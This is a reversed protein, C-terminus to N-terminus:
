VPSSGTSREPNQGSIIMSDLNGITRITKLENGSFIPVFDRAFSSSEPCHFEYGTVRFEYVSVIIRHHWGGYFLM